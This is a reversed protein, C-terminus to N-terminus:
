EVESEVTCKTESERSDIYVCVCVCVHIYTDIYTDIHTYAYEYIDTHMFMCVYIIDTYKHVKLEFIQSYIYTHTHIDRYAYVYM